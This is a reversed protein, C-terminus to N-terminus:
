HSRRAAGRRWISCHVNGQMLGVTQKMGGQPDGLRVDQLVSGTACLGMGHDVQVWAVLPELLCSGRLCRCRRHVQQPWPVPVHLQGGSSKSPSTASAAAATRSAPRQEVSHLLAAPRPLGRRPHHASSAPQWVHWRGWSRRHYRGPVVLGEIGQASSDQPSENSTGGAHCCWAM